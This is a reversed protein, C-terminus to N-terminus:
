SLHTGLGEPSHLCASHGEESIACDSGPLPLTVWPGHCLPPPDTSWAPHSSHLICPCFRFCRGLPESESVVLRFQLHGHTKLDKVSKQARDYLLNGCVLPNLVVTVRKECNRLDSTGFWLVM